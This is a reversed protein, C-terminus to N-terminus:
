CDPPLGCLSRACARLKKEGADPLVSDLIVALNEVATGDLQIGIAEFYRRLNATVAELSGFDGGPVIWGALTSQQLHEAALETAKVRERLALRAVRDIEGGGCNEDKMWRRIRRLPHVVETNWVSSFELARRLTNGDLDKGSVGLWCGYLLLNVDVNFEDQLRLCAAPVNERAYIRLSFDWFSEHPSM